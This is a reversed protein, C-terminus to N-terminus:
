KGNEIIEKIWETKQTTFDCGDQETQNFYRYNAKKYKDIPSNPRPAERHKREMKTELLYRVVDDSEYSIQIIDLINNKKMANMMAEKRFFYNDTRWQGILNDVCLAFHYLNESAFKDYYFIVLMIFHDSMYTTSGTDLYLQRFLRRMKEIEADDCKEVFLKQAIQHYTKVFTFFCIGKYLPQRVTFPYAKPTNEAPLHEKFTEMKSNVTLEYTAPVSYVKINNRGSYAPKESFEHMISEYSASYGFTNGKWTRMRWLGSVILDNLYQEAPNRFINHGTNQIDEWLRASAHQLEDDAHIARLHVAKLVDVASPQVGRNNQSDFFTFANDENDTLIVTFRLHSYIDKQQLLRCAGGAGCKKQAYLTISEITAKADNSKVNIDINKQHKVLASSEGNLVYDLILLTTLRQQGDVINWRREEEDKHVIVTGMYYDIRDDYQASQLYEMWDNMLTEVKKRSWAYPRQYPPVTLTYGHLERDFLERYTPNTPRIYSDYSSPM